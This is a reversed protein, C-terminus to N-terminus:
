NIVHRVESCKVRELGGSRNERICAAQMREILETPREQGCGLPPTGKVMGAAAANNSIHYKGSLRDENTNEESPILRILCMKGLDSM